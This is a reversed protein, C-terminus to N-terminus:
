AIGKQQQGANNHGPPATTARQAADGADDSHRPSRRPHMAVAAFRAPKGRGLTFDAFTQWIHLFRRVLVRRDGPLVPMAPTM